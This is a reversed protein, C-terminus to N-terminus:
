SGQPREKFTLALLPQEAEAGRNHYEIERKDAGDHKVKVTNLQDPLRDLLISNKLTVGSLGQPAPVEFYAALFHTRLELGVWKQEMAKGSADRLEFHSKLYEHVFKEAPKKHDLSANRGAAEQFLRELDESHIWVIVEFLKKSAIYDVQAISSHFTHAEAFCTVAAILRLLRVPNRSVPTARQM